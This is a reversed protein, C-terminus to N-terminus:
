TGWTGTQEICHWDGAITCRLKIYSGVTSSNVDVNASEQGGGISAELSEGSKPYIQFAHAAAVQFQYELGAVALPLVVYVTATAGENTYIMDANNYKASMATATPLAAYKMLNKDPSGYSGAMLNGRFINRGTCTADSRTGWVASTNEWNVLNDVIMNQICEDDAIDIGTVTASDLMFINGSVSNLSAPYTGSKDFKIYTSTGSSGMFNNGQIVVNRAGDLLVGVQGDYVRIESGIICGGEIGDNFQIQDGDNSIVKCKIIKPGTGQNNAPTLNGGLSVSPDSVVYICPDPNSDTSITGSDVIIKWTNQVAVSDIRGTYTPTDGGNYQAVVTGYTPAGTGTGTIYDSRSNNITIGNGECFEVTVDSFVHGWSNGTNIGDESFYAIFLRTLKLDLCNTNTYIGNGASRATKQGHWKMDSLECFTDGTTQDYYWMDVDAALNVRTANVGAGFVHCSSYLNVPTSIWFDGASLAVKGGSNALCADLAAQIQVDDATGDCLYDAHRKAEADANSAAVVKDASRGTSESFNYRSRGKVTGTILLATLIFIFVKSKM